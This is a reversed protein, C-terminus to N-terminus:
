LHRPLWSHKKDESSDLFAIVTLWGYSSFSLMKAFNIWSDSHLGDVHKARYSASSTLAARELEHAHCSQIILPQAHGLLIATLQVAM